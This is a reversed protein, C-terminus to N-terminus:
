VKDGVAAGISEGGSESSSFVDELATAADQEDEGTAQLDVTTGMTACLAIISLISRADAIRGRCEVSIQSRFKQAIQVLKM